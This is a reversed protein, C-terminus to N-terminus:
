WDVPFRREIRSADMLWGHTVSDSEEVLGMVAPDM